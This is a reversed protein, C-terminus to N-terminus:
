MRLKRRSLDTGTKEESDSGESQLKIHVPWKGTITLVEVARPSPVYGTIQDPTFDGNIVAILFAQEKFEPSGTLHIGKWGKMKAVKLM